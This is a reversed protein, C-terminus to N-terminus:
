CDDYSAIIVYLFYILINNIEKQQLLQDSRDRTPRAEPSKVGRGGAKPLRMACGVIGPHDQGNSKECPIYPNSGQGMSGHALRNPWKHGVRRRAMQQSTM